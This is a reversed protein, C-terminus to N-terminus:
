LQLVLYSILMFSSTSWFYKAISTRSEAGDRELWPWSQPQSATKTETHSTVCCPSSFLYPGPAKKLAHLISFTFFAQVKGARGAGPGRQRVHSICLVSASRQYHLCPPWRSKNSWTVTSTGSVDSSKSLGPANRNSIIGERALGIWLYM